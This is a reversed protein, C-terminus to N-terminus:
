FLKSGPGLKLKRNEFPVTLDTGVIASESIPTDRLREAGYKDFLGDTVQKFTIRPRWATHPAEVTVTVQDPEERTLSVSDLMSVAVSHNMITEDERKYLALL